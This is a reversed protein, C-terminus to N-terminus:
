ITTNYPKAVLIYWRCRMHALMKARNHERHAKVETNLVWPSYGPHFPLKFNWINQKIKSKHFDYQRQGQQNGAVETATVM